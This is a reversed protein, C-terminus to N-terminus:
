EDNDEEGEILEESGDYKKVLSYTEYLGVKKYLSADTMVIGNMGLMPNTYTDIRVMYDPEFYIQVSQLGGKLDVQIDIVPLGYIEEFVSKFEEINM